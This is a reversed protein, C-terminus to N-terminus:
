SPLCALAIAEIHAADTGCCGGLITVGPRSVLLDCYLTALEKPDGTDLVASEDLEAHSKSSANARISRIRRGGGDDAPFAEQFHTPYACNIGYYVPGSDTASDVASIAEALTTGSPLRGDTETTFSIAVPVEAHLAARAVGIAEEVSTITMAHVLDVETAALTEIQWRHYTQADDATMQHPRYADDRPGICGSIVVPSSLDAEARLTVLLEIARENVDRLQQDSYGLREGWQRSARWTPAELILGCDFARAIGLHRRFYQKLAAVGAPDDLLVFAAFEPLDFGGNFILDTEIGSDTLFLADSLQPLARRYPTITMHSGYTSNRTPYLDSSV